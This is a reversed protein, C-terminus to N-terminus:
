RKEINIIRDCISASQEKHTVMILSSDSCYRKINKLLKTEVNIDLASTAEDFIILPSKNYIARAIGIRQIQGGSLLNGRDGVITNIGKPLKDILEILCAVELVEMLKKDSIPRRYKDNLIINEKISKDLLYVNQPVHTIANQWDNINYFIEDKYIYKGDVRISGKEPKILGMIVDIISTKGVGSPGMIAIFEGRKLILNFNSISYNASNKYKFYISNLELKDKFIERPKKSTKIKKNYKNKITWSNSNDELIELLSDTKSEAHKITTISTYILQISPLLKQGGFAFISLQSINKLNEENNSVSSIILLLGIILLTEFLYKPYTSTFKANVVTDKLIKDKTKFYLIEQDKRDNIIVDKISELAEKVIKVTNLTERKMIESNRRIHKRLLSNNILYSISLISILFFSIKPNVRILSISLAITILLSNIIILFNNISGVATKSFITLKSILTGSNVELHKEYPWYIIKAFINRNVETGILAATKGSYWLTYVRLIASILVILIFLYLPNIEKLFNSFFFYKRSFEFNSLSESQLKSIVNAISIVSIAEFISSIIMLFLNFCVRFINKKSICALIRLPTRLARYTNSNELLM